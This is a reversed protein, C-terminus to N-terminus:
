FSCQLRSLCRTPVDIELHIHEFDDGVAFEKVGIGHRLASDYIADHIIECTKPNKFMMYRYKTVFVMHQWNYRHIRATASEKIDRENNVSSM